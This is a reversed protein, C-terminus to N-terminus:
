GVGSVSISVFHTVSKSEPKFFHHSSPEKPSPLCGLGTNPNQEIIADNEIHQLGEVGKGGLSSQGGEGGM